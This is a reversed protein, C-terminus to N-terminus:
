KIPAFLQSYQNMRKPQRTSVIIAGHANRQLARLLLDHAATMDGNARASSVYGFTIQLPKDYERLINAEQGKL